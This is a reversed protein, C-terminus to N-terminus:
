AAGRAARERAVIAECHARLAAYWQAWGLDDPSIGLGASRREAIVNLRRASEQAAEAIKARAQPTAPPVKRARVYEWTEVLSGEAIARPGEVSGFWRLLAPLEDLPRPQVVEAFGLFTAHDPWFNRASGGGHSRLMECLAALRDDAMYALEDALRDLARRQDADAVGKPFRFGLPTLLIRRVRDRKTEAPAETKIEQNVAAETM